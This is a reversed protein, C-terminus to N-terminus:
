YKFLVLKSTEDAFLCNRKHPALDKVGDTVVIQSPTILFTTEHGAKVDIGTAKLDGASFPDHITIQFDTPKNSDKDYGRPGQLYVQFNKEVHIFFTFIM